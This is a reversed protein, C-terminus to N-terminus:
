VQEPESPAAISDSKVAQNSVVDHASVVSSKESVTHDPQKETQVDNPEQLLDIWGEIRDRIEETQKKWRNMFTYMSQLLPVSTTMRDKPYGTFRIDYEKLYFHLMRPHWTMEGAREAGVDNLACYKTMAKKVMNRDKDTMPEKLSRKHNQTSIMNSPM